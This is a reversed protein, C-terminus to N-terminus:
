STQSMACQKGRGTGDQTVKRPAGYVYVINGRLLGGWMAHDTYKQQEWCTLREKRSSAMQGRGRLSKQSWSVPLFWSVVSVLCYQHDVEIPLATPLQENLGRQICYSGHPRTEARLTGLTQKSFSSKRSHVPLMRSGRTFVPILPAPQLQRRYLLDSVRAHIPLLWATMTVADSQLVPTLLRSDQSRYRQSAIGDSTLYTM